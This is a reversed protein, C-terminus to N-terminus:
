LLIESLVSINNTYQLWVWLIAFRASRFGGAWAIAHVELPKFASYTCMSGHSTHLSDVSETEYQVRQSM